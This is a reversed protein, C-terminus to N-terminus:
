EGGGRKSELRAFQIIIETGQGYVSKVDVSAGHQKIIWSAISLGLGTGPVGNSRAKDVRYFREFIHPLDEDKIGIGRDKISVQCHDKTTSVSLNIPDGPKKSYKSANELFIRLLQKVLDYDGLILGEGDVSLIINIDPDMVNLERVVEEAVIGVKLPQKQLQIRKQDTKAMFLLKKVLMSMHETESKISDISEQLVDPNNKGWRDILNAYGQV